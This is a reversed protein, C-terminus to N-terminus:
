SERVASPPLQSHHKSENLDQVEPIIHGPNTSCAKGDIDGSRQGELIHLPLKEAAAGWLYRGCCDDPCLRSVSVIRRSFPHPLLVISPGPINKKKCALINERGKKKGKVSSNCIRNSPTKGKKELTYRWAQHFCSKSKFKMIIVRLSSSGGILANPYSM